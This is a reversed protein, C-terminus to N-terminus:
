YINTMEPDVNSAEQMSLLNEHEADHWRLPIFCWYSPNCDLFTRLGVPCRASHQYLRM